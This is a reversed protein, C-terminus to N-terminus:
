LLRGLFQAAFQGEQSVMEGARLALYVQM